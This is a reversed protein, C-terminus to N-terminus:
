FNDEDNVPTSHRFGGPPYCEQRSVRCDDERGPITQRGVAVTCADPSFFHSPPGVLLTDQVRSPRGVVGMPGSEAVQAVTSCFPEIQRGCTDKNVTGGDVVAPRGFVRV